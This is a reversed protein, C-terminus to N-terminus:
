ISASNSLNNINVRYMEITAQCSLIFDPIMKNIFEEENMAEIILELENLVKLLDDKESYSATSLINSFNKMLLFTNYCQKFIKIIVDYYDNEDDCLSYLRHSLIAEM